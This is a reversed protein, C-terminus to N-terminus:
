LSEDGSLSFLLGSLLQTNLEVNLIICRPGFKHSGGAGKMHVAMFQQM